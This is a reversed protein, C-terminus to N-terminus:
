SKRAADLHDLLARNDERLQRVYDVYDTMDRIVAMFGIIEGEADHVQVAITESAFVSGDKRRYRIFKAGNPRPEDTNFFNDGQSDFDEPDAYLMRTVNGILEAEAYGFVDLFARNVMAIEREANAIVIADPFRTFLASAIEADAYPPADTM